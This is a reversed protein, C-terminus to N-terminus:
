ISLYLVKICINNVLFHYIKVFITRTYNLRIADKSRESERIFVSKKKIYENMCVCIYKKRSYGGHVITFSTVLMSLFGSSSIVQVVSTQYVCVYM